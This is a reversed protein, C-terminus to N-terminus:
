GRGTEPAFVAWALTVRAVCTVVCLLAFVLAMVPFAKPWLMMAVFFLITETGEALGTTFYLAKPTGELQPLNQRAAIAAYALFSAGNVYFTFLLLSAALANSIPDRLAFALPVAGYVAFDCVIDLMGGRDSGASLRAIAGDLGDAARNLGFLILALWLPAGVAILAASALGLGLGILTM